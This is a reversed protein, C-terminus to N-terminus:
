VSIYDVLEKRLCEILNYEILHREKMLILCNIWNWKAFCLKSIIESYNILRASNVLLMEPKLDIWLKIKDQKWTTTKSKIKKSFLSIFGEFIKSYPIRILILRFNEESPSACNLPSGTVLFNSKTLLYYSKIWSFWVYSYFRSWQDYSHFM